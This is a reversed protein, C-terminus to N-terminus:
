KVFFLDSAALAPHDTLTAVLQPSSSGGKGDADFRLRGDTTNYAFRQATGTFAGTASAHFLTPPLPKPTSTAGALGLHFGSNSIVLKDGKFDTIANSGPAAFLFQDNAAGGTMTTHGGAFFRDSGAGGKAVDVGGGAHVDVANVSFFGGSLDSADVTNGANGGVVTIRDAFSLADFNADTLVLTNAGGNALTITAFGSINTMSDIGPRGFILAPDFEGTLRGNVVVDRVILDSEASVTTGAAIKLRDLTSKEPSDIDINGPGALTGGKITGGHITLSGTVTLVGGLALIGGGVIQISGANSSAGALSLTATKAGAGGVVSVEGAATNRLSSAKVVTAAKLFDNGIDLIGSNTFKGGITLSSGGVNIISFEIDVRVSGTNNFAGATKVSAGDRLDLRGANAALKTLASNVNTSTALAVRAKAGELSLVAGNGIATIAGGTYQLLADGGLSINGALTAPAAAGVKLTAQVASAGTIDIEGSNALSAATVTVAKAITSIGIVLFGSNTFKGGITLSSGGADTNFDVDAVVSGTNNFAGATKVSAGNSLHLRGANAALKTLASNLNTSAAIAVRAKAGRLSLEAGKGIAGVAGSAYQLLANGSLHYDGTLTAPAAAGVKLTAQAPGGTLDIEGTNVLGAATVTAARALSARGIEFHNGLGASNTLTGGVTVVGNDNIRFVFSNVLNHAIKLMAKATGGSLGIAGTNVLAGLSVTTARTLGSIGITMGGSNRLTGSVTLVAGGGVGKVLTNDIHFQNSTVANGKVTLRAAATGGILDVTGSNELAGVTVASVAALGIRGISLHGANALAGAVTVKSGGGSPSDVALGARLNSVTISRAAVSASRVSVTYAGAIAIVADDGAGPVAAMSWNGANTWAGSAPLKWKVTAM